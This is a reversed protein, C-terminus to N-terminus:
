MGSLRAMGPMRGGDRNELSVGFSYDVGGTGNGTIRVLLVAYATVSPRATLLVDVRMPVYGIMLKLKLISYGGVYQM